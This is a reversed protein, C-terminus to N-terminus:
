KETGAAALIAYWGVGYFGKTLPSGRITPVDSISIANV